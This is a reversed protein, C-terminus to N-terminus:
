VPPTIEGTAVPHVTGRVTVAAVTGGTHTVTGYLTSPRGIEAGQQVRYDTTGDPVLGSTALWVGFGLAASGTAPDEFGEDTLARAHAVGDSWSFVWVGMSGVSRLASWDPEARAVADETVPLYTWELGTGATRPPALGSLAGADLGVAALLPSPDLPEGATAAGGTLTAGEATVEVPLLGAACDQTVTGTPIRGLRALLWATGISPHGAFPLESSATFIRVRYDAGRESAMPFTTESLNFERAMAQLAETPLDDAGLVVALPNGAYPRDTFVDVVHYPLTPM